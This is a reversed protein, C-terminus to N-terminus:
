LLSRWLMGVDDMDRMKKPSHRDRGVHAALSLTVLPGELEWVRYYYPFNLPFEAGFKVRFGGLNPCAQIWPKPCPQELSQLFRQTDSCYDSEGSSAPTMLTMWCLWKSSTILRLWYLYDTGTVLRYVTVLICWHDINLLSLHNMPQFCSISLFYSNYLFFIFPFIISACCKKNFVVPSISMSINYLLSPFYKQKKKRVSQVSQSQFEASFYKSLM